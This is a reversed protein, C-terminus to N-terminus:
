DNTSLFGMFDDYIIDNSIMDIEMEVTQKALLDNQNFVTTKKHSFFSFLTVFILLLSFLSISAFIKRKRKVAGGEKKVNQLIKDWREKDNQM